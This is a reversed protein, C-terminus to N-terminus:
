RAWAAVAVEAAFSQEDESPFEAVRWNARESMLKRALRNNM